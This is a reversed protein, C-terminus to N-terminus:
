ERAAALGLERAKTVAPMANPWGSYFAMHRSM